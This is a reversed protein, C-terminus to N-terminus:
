ANALARKNAGVDNAVDHGFGRLGDGQPPANFVTASSTQMILGNRLGVALVAHNEATLAAAGADRVESRVAVEPRDDLDEAPGRIVARLRVFGVGSAQGPWLGLEATPSRRPAHTTAHTAEGSSWWPPLCIIDIAAIRRRAPAGCSISVSTANRSYLAYLRPTILLSM